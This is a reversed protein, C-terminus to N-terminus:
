AKRREPLTKKIESLCANWGAPYEEDGYKIKRPKPLMSEHIWGNDKLSDTIKQKLEKITKEENDENNFADYKGLDFAETLIDEIWKENKM